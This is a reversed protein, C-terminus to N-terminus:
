PYTVTVADVGNARSSTLGRGVADYTHSELIKGDSDRAATIMSNTDYEFSVTTSDPKTVKILRGQGDYTYSLSIGIDSTISTVLSSSGDAYGFNLHRLAADTVTVLRQSSDYSLQTTNGNRDVIATLAGTTGDFLRKTGDKTTLTWNPSGKTITTTTDDAPADTVYTTPPGERSMSFWWVSGDSRAYKLYPDSSVFILREEYTSRWGNGFMFPYSRQTASLISNWMRALSLGGGLGPVNVDSENIYTNGTTLNIPKGAAACSACFTESAAMPAPGCKPRPAVCEQDFNVGMPNNCVMTTPANPDPLASSSWHYLCETPYRAVLQNYASSTDQGQVRASSGFLFLVVMVASILAVICKNLKM